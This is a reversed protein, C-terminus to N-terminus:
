DVRSDASRRRRQRRSGDGEPRLQATQAAAVGRHWGHQRRAAVLDPQVPAAPDDVIPTAAPNFRRAPKQPGAIFLDGGPLLFTWPYYFYNFPVAKPASWAGGGGPTFIELSQVAAGAANAHDEGFLTLATGNGLTVHDSLLPRHAADAAAVSATPRDSQVPVRTARHGASVGGGTM